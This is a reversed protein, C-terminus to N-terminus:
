FTNGFEAMLVPNDRVIWRKFATFASTNQLHQLIRTRLRQTEADSRDVATTYKELLKQFRKIEIQLASRLNASEIKKQETPIGNYIAMLLAVTNSIPIADGLARIEVHEGPFMNVQYHIARDVEHDLKTCDLIEGLQKLAQKTNNCHVCCLFLNGWHFMLDRNGAHAILHEINISTPKSIECLYCKNKFDEHLQVAVGECRYTGNPKAKEIALCSPEPQTKEFHVM